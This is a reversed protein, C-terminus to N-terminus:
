SKVNKGGELEVFTHVRFGTIGAVEKVIGDTNRGEKNGICIENLKAQTYLSIYEALEKNSNFKERLQNYREIETNTM